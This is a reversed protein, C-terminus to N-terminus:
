YANYLNLAAWTEGGDTTKLLQTKNRWDQAVAWGYEDDVFDLQVINEGHTLFPELSKSIPKWTQGGDDTRYLMGQVPAKSNSDHPEGSWIWGTEYSVFSSIGDFKVPLAPEWTKGADHTQYFVKYYNTSERDTPVFATEVIGAGGFFHPLASPQISGDHLSPPITFKQEQWDAGADHTFFLFPRTTTTLSGLLWGNTADQFTIRGGSTIYPHRDAFGPDSGDSDTWNSKETSNILRWEDYPDFGYLYGPMWNMTHDPTVFVREQDSFDSPHYVPPLLTDRPVPNQQATQDAVPFVLDSGEVLYPVTLETDSWYQGGNITQLVFINSSEDYNATVWATDKDYASLEISHEPSACLVVKWSAGGDTTRLIANQEFVWDNTVFLTAVSQAWGIQRDMMHITGICYFYGPDTASGLRDRFIEWNARARPHYPLPNGSDDLEPFWRMLDAQRGIQTKRCRQVLMKYIPNAKKPDLYKIWSGATCLVRATENSNDPMFRAAEVALDAALFHYHYREEPEVGHQAYRQLEDSSPVFLKTSANTRCEATAGLEFEGSYFFWDPALETGLLEMGNTRTMMATDLLAGTREKQPLSKNHGTRLAEILKDFAPRLPQPYYARAEENRGLRALRRALLYRIDNRSDTGDPPVSEDQNTSPREPWDQNVYSKLEDVTLIREAVYAADMWFGSRLLADLSEVYDQQSLHFVGLEGLVQNTANILIAPEEHPVGLEDKLQNSDSDQSEMLKVVKALMAGADDIKGARLLLKTELWQAVSSEPARDVWRQATDWEGAQYAALALEEASDVDSVRAAEVAELWVAAQGGKNVFPDDSILHATIVRQTVPNAALHKLMVPDNTALVRCATFELSTLASPDGTKWQELYLLIAKEVNTQRLEALAELGFSAAALGCSDAFGNAAFKRTLQFDGVANQPDVDTWYKGLMFAAWTSKYRREQPPLNLVREWAEMAAEKNTLAPNEWVIAGAFYNSFEAPLGSTVNLKPFEPAPGAPKRVYNSTTEDWEVSGSIKWQEMDELYSQLRRRELQHGEIVTKIAPRSAGSRDLDAQLDDLEADTSEGAYSNTTTIAQFSNTALHMRKLESEFDAIPAALVADDGGNLLNNSFYFGCAPLRLV